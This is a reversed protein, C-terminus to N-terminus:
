DNFAFAMGGYEKIEEKLTLYNSEKRDGIVAAELLFHRKEQNVLSLSM